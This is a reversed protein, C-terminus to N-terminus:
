WFLDPYIHKGQANIIKVNNAPVAGGIQTIKGQNFVIATNELATGIGTHITAGVIAVAQTQKPAPQPRQAWIFGATSILIYILIKNM